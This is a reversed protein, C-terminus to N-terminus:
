VEKDRFFTRGVNWSVGKDCVADGVGYRDLIVLARKAYCVGRSGISVTDDEDLLLVPIDHVQLDLAAALGVPGAGVVVVPVKLRQGSAIEPPTKYEFKPYNYTSLM